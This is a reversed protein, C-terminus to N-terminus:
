VIRKLIKNYLCTLVISIIVIIILITKSALVDNNEIAYYMAMPVTQTEGPINGAVLITAGFEGFVRAISLILGTLIGKKCLPLSIKRFVQFESAGMERAANKIDEDISLISTKISQYMVPLSVIVGVIVAAFWTFIISINFNEYLMSGLFGRRGLAILVLYGVASPPLFMPFIMITEILNKGKVKKEILINIAILTVILSIIVSVVVVKFSIYFANLIM